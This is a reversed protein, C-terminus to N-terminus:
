RQLEGKFAASRPRHWVSGSALGGMWGVLGGSLAVAPAESRVDFSGPGEGCLWRELGSNSTVILALAPYLADQSPCVYIESSKLICISGFIYQVHIIQWIYEKM